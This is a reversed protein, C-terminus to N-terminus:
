DGNVLHCRDRAPNHLKLVTLAGQGGCLCLHRRDHPDVRLAQLGDAASLEKKWM